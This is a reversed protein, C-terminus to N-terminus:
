DAPRLNTEERTFANNVSYLVLSTLAGAVLVQWIGGGISRTPQGFLYLGFRSFSRGGAVRDFAAGAIELVMFVLLYVGAGGIAWHWAQTWRLPSALRRLVFAAILQPICGFITEIFFAFLFDSAWNSTGANDRGILFQALTFFFSGCVVAALYYALSGRKTM